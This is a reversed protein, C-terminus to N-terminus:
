KVISVSYELPLPLGCSKIYGFASSLKTHQEEAAVILQLREVGSLGAVFTQATDAMLMLVPWLLWMSLEKIGSVQAMGLLNASSVKTTEDVVLRLVALKCRALAAATQCVAHMEPGDTVSFDLATLHHLSSLSRVAAVRDAVPATASLTRRVAAFSDPLATIQLSQLQCCHTSLSTLAEPMIFGDLSVHLLNPFANCPIAGCSSNLKQVQGCIPVTLPDASPLWGGGLATLHSLGQLAVVVHPTWASAALERLATLPQLAAAYADFGAAQKVPWMVLKTLQTLQGLVGWDAPSLWLVVDECQKLTVAQLRSCNGLSSFGDASCAGLTLSTLASMRSVLDFSVPQQDADQCILDLCLDHVNCLRSLQLLDAKICPAEDQM